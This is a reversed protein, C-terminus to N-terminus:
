NKDQRVILGMKLRMAELAEESPMKKNNMVAARREKRRKGPPQYTPGGAHQPTESSPKTDEVPADDSTTENSGYKYRCLLYGFTFGLVLWVLCSAVFTILLM